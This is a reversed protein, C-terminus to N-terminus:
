KKFEKITYYILFIIGAVILIGTGVILIKDPFKHLNNIVKYVIEEPFQVPNM